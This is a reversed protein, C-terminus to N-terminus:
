SEAAFEAFPILEDVRAMMNTIRTTLSGVEFKRPGSSVFRGWLQDHAVAVLYIPSVFGTSYWPPDYPLTIEQWKDWFRQPEFPMARPNSGRYKVWLRQLLALQEKNLNVQLLHNILPGQVLRGVMFSFLYATGTSGAFHRTGRKGWQDGSFRNPVLAPLLALERENVWLDKRSLLNNKIDWEMGKWLFDRHDLAYFPTECINFDAPIGLEVMCARVLGEALKGKAINALRTPLHSIDMRNVTFPLSLVAYEFANKVLGAYTAPLATYSVYPGPRDLRGKTM